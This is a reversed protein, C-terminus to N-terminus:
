TNSKHLTHSVKCTRLRLARELEVSKKNAKIVQRRQRVERTRNPRYYPLGIDVREVGAVLRPVNLFFFNMEGMVLSACLHGKPINMIINNNRFLLQCGKVKLPGM